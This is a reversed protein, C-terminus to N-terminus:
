EPSSHGSEIAQRAGLDVRADSLHGSGSTQSETLEVGADAVPVGKGALGAATGTRARCIPCIPTRLLWADVCHAHFSHGCLPLLRCKEGMKFNDLCVACDVPSSKYNAEYDYSPLKEVEDKSMCTTAAGSTATRGAAIAAATLANGGLGGRRFARGVIWVHVLILFGIGLFLLIVSMFIAMAVIQAAVGGIKDSM